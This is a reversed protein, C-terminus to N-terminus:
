EDKLLRQMEQSIIREQAKGSNSLDNIVMKQDTISRNQSLKYKAEVKSVEMVIGVIGNLNAELYESETEAARWPKERTQEHFDTLDSVIQYIEDREEIVKLTGTLHVAQYNWTPVVKHDTLKKEYNTPSVYAQAGSIIALGTDGNKIQKWQPNGKSIHTILKGYSGESIENTDWVSPLLTALPTQDEGVTVLWISAQAAVFSKIEEFDEILFQKPTYV